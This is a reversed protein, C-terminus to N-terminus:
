FLSPIFPFVFFLFLVLFLVSFQTVLLKTAIHLGAFKLYVISLRGQLKDRIKNFREVCLSLELKPTKELGNKHSDKLADEVFVTQVMSQFEGETYMNWLENAAQESSLRFTM